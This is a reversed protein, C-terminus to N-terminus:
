PTDRRWGLITYEQVGRYSGGALVLLRARSGWSHVTRRVASSPWRRAGVLAGPVGIAIRLVAALLARPLSRRHGLDEALARGFTLSEDPWVCVIRGDPALLRIAESLVGAPDPHVQLLNGVLVLDAQGAALGTDAADALLTRSVRRRGAAQELMAASTDVGTVTWGQEALQRGSLGTGCGLDVAQGPPGVEGLIARYAAATLPSDWIADYLAAYCRWFLTGASM